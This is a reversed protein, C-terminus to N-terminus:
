KGFDKMYKPNTTLDGPGSVCGILDAALEAMSGPQPRIGRAMLAELAERILASRTTRRRRATATLANDLSEPIKVSVTRM